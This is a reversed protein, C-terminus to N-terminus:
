EDGEVLRYKREFVVKPNLYFYGDDTCIYYDGVAPKMRSMLEPRCTVVEGNDLTIDVLGEEYTDSVHTIQFADVTLPRVAYKSM